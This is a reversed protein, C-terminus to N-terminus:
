PRCIANVIKASAQGGGYLEDVSAITTGLMQEVSQIIRAGSTGALKNVGRDVLETWETESRVTVCPNNFFFAEKQMGGSDTVLLRCRDLLYLVELYGVPEICDVKLTLSFEQIKKRTRPHLPMVVRYQEHLQNLASVIGSLTEKDDTSEARHITALIFGEERDNWEGEQPCIARDKFLMAADQMVDGVKLVEVSLSDYGEMKLNEVAKETPCFLLQSVRDTLIRNVEEPMKMNFSRLGAEVHALPIHLKSASLAAALTSNTDGYVLVWDPKESLMLSELGELMRGTMAGHNLGSINLNYKPKPIRMQDFFVDSMNKDFHQGTHVLVEEVGAQCSFEYSVPAAKVFQPRAGIVTFVKM